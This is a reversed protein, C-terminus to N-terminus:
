SCGAVVTFGTVPHLEAGNKAAGRRPLRQSWFGVGRIYVIAGLDQWHGNPRACDHVFRRWTSTIADRARTRSTLCRPTPIVANLYAGGDFLVLRLGGNQLRFVTVQAVVEWIQRQFPTRRLRPLRQPFPRRGIAAITTRRTALRVSESRRDSLTKMRWLQGGCHDALEAESRGALEPEARNEPAASSAAAAALTTVAILVVRKV